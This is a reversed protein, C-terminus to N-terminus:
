TSFDELFYIAKRIKNFIINEICKVPKVTTLQECKQQFNGYCLNPSVTTKYKPPLLALWTRLMKNDAHFSSMRFDPLIVFALRPM